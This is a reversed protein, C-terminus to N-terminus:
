PTAGMVNLRPGGIPVRLWFINENGGGRRVGIKGGHLEVLCRALALSIGGTRSKASGLRPHPDFVHEPDEGIGVGNDSVTIHLHDDVASVNLIVLGGGPTFKFANALLTTVVQRLRAADAWVQPLSEPVETVLEVRGTLAAGHFGETVEQLLRAPDVRSCNLELLGCESRGLDSLEAVSRHLGEASMQISQALDAWPKEKIGSALMESAGLLPTLPTKLDHALCQIFLGLRKVREELETNARRLAELEESSEGATLKDVVPKKM